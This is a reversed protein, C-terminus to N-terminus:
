FIFYDPKHRKLYFRIIQISFIHVCAKTGGNLTTKPAHKFLMLFETKNSISLILTQTEFHTHM